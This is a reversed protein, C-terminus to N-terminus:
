AEDIADFTGHIISELDADSMTTADGSQEEVSMDVAKRQPYLYKALEKLASLQIQVDDSEHAIKALGALPDISCGLEEEIERVKQQASVKTNKNRTGSKRGPGGKLLKGSEPDRAAQYATDYETGTLRAPTAQTTM